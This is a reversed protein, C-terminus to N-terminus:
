RLKQHMKSRKVMRENVSAISEGILDVMQEATAKDVAGSGTTAKGHIRFMKGIAKDLTDLADEAEGAADVLEQDTSETVDLDEGLISDSLDHFKGM